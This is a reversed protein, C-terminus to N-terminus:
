ATPSTCRSKSASVCKPTSLSPGCPSKELLKFQQILPINGPAASDGHGTRERYTLPHTMRHTAAM